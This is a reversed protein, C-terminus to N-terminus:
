HMTIGPVFNAGFQGPIGFPGPIFQGAYAGGSSQVAQQGALQALQQAVVYHYQALQQLLQYQAQQPLLAPTIQEPNPQPQQWASGPQAVGNSLGNLGNMGPQRIGFQQGALQHAPLQQHALLQQIALQQLAAQQAAHQWNPLQSLGQGFIPTQQPFGGQLTNPFGTNPFGYQTNAFPVTNAFPISSPINGPNGQFGQLGFSGQPYLNGQPFFNGQPYFNGMPNASIPNAGVHPYFSNQPYFM